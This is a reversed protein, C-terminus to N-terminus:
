RPPTSSPPPRQNASPALFRGVGDPLPSELSAPGLPGTFDLTSFTDVDLRGTKPWYLMKRAAARGSQGSDSAQRFLEADSRGDGELVLLDKAQTYSIRHGRATFAHGEVLANGLAQLEVAAEGTPQEGAQAVQLMDSNLLVVEADPQDVLDPNITADWRDVKGYVARVQEHLEVHREHVNGTVRQQFTVRLYTLRTDKAGDSATAPAPAGRGAFAPPVFSGAGAGSAGARRVTKLWGPGAAQLEGSQNDIVLDRVEMQDIATVAGEALTRNEFSVQGLFKVFQVDLAERAPRRAFDIRQTLHVDLAPAAVRQAETRAIVEGRLQVTQGDFTMAERWTVLAPPSAKPEERFGVASRAAGSRNSQLSAAVGDTPLTLEGPGPVWARNAARDFHVATGRLSAGRGSITAPQGTLIARTELSDAGTVHVADGTLRFPIAGLEATQTELIQAGGEVSVDRVQMEKGQVALLIRLLRGTIDYVSHPQTGHTATSAAWPRPSTPQADAQVNAQADAPAIHQFWVEFREPSGTLMTSNIKVGRQALLRDPQIHLENSTKAGASAADPPTENLWFHIEGASLEGMNEAGVRARGVLSLVHQAGAPQLRMEDQWHATVVRPPSTGITAQVRGPGAALAAGLQSTPSITYQLSRAEIRRGEHELLVPRDGELLFQNKALDLELRDGRATARLSPSQLVVPHGLAVIKSVKTALQQAQSAPPKNAPSSAPATADAAPPGNNSEAFHIELLRCNLQDSPGHPNLRLVDVQDELSAVRREFDFILPGRCTVEIQSPGQLKAAPDNKRATPPAMDATTELHLRELHVIELSSLGGINEAKGLGDEDAANALTIILDRGRGYNRGYRFAVEHPTWIRQADMQVNRTTLLLADAAGSQSEPSRITVDGVLRGGILKGFEGRRIDVSSDFQLLAGDPADLVIVREATGGSKPCFLATCPKLEMRGDDLTRYDQVLLVAQDTEVIKPRQRQWANEDPFAAAILRDHRSKHKEAGGSGHGQPLAAREAAAPEILPVALLSYLWYCAVVILFSM